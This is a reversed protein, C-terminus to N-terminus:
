EYDATLCEYREFCGVHVRSSAHSAGRRRPHGSARQVPYPSSYPTEQDEKARWVSLFFMVSM